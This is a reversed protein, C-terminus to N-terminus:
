RAPVIVSLALPRARYYLPPHMVTVEGDLSVRLHHRRPTSVHLATAAFSELAHSSRARGMLALALLKPLERTRVRPALYAFLTGGDLRTRAGLRLGETQYENNGVFLFPTRTKQTADRARVGVTLGRYHRVVRACAIAFATWKRRGQTRLREREVVIDPYVGISSNNLFYRANVEGVDVRTTQAAVITAVALPLDFPIGLDRAFHNLTGLPLVGMPTQSGVLASAVSNVTGDGGAAVVSAAGDAVAAHVAAATNDGAGLTVIRATAGAAEFLGALRAARDETAAIGAAPNLLVAIV